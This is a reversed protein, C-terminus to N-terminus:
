NEVAFQAIVSQSTNGTEDKTVIRWYYITGPDVSVMLETGTIDSANLNPPNNTGFYVDYGVIDNDVDNGEWQLNVSTSAPLTQAINPSVIEASFPAYTQIAEGANYFNWVESQLDEGEYNFSVFWRFANARAITVPFLTEETNFQATNGSTLDEVILTYTTANNNPQWEFLVTSETPTINTGETCLSNEFPFILDVATIPDPTENNPNENGNDGLDDSSSCGYLFFLIALIQFLRKM